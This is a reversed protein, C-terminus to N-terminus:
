HHVHVALLACACACAFGVGSWEGAIGVMGCCLSHLLLGKGVAALQQVVPTRSANSTTDCCNQRLHLWHALDKVFSAAEAPPLEQPVPTSPPRLSQSNHPPTQLSTSHLYELLMQLPM